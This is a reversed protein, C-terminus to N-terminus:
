SSISQIKKCRACFEPGKEDTDSLSNSFHMICHPDRCHGLGCTHGLEHISEKVARDQFLRANRRLGYFEQRLRTLSIVAVGASADAEGFVFNLGPVFLDADIVGLVRDEDRQIMGRLTELMATSRYQKRKSDYSTLPIHLEAGTEVMCHFNKELSASIANLITPDASGMPIILIRKM